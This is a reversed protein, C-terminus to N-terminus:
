KGVRARVHTPCDPAGFFIHCVISSNFMLGDPLTASVVMANLDYYDSIKIDSFVEILDGPSAGATGVGSVVSSGYYMWVPTAFKATDTLLGM